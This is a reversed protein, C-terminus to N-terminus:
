RQLDALREVERDRDQQAKELRRQHQTLLEGREREASRAAASLREALDDREKAAQAATQAAAAELLKV